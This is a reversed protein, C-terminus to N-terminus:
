VPVLAAKRRFWLYVGTCLSLSVIAALATPFEPIASDLVTFTDERLTYTWTSDYSAPPTFDPECVIVNWTGAVDIGPAFTHQTTLNGSADSTDDQTDRKDTGGDYYAMRYNHSPLLGTSKMFVTHETDYDSFDDCATSHTVDSYSAATPLSSNVAALADALGWGYVRDWGDTGNDTATSQLAHRVQEPTWTSNKELILAAVGAALPCAMSTGQMIFYDAPGSSNNVGDNDIVLANYAGPWTYIDTDRASIIASGPAVINPKPPAGTDVRPGRSSFSAIIDLTEGYTWGVGTYDTWSDRTVYAGVAIASDATAPSGITYDPDPSAFTVNDLLSYVHFFQSSASWNRARLYYTGVSLVWLSGSEGYYSSESQTGRSSETEGLSTYPTLPDGLDQSNYALLDLDNDTVLGDYWVMRCYLYASQSVTVEIWDSWNDAAVTGSYHQDDNADNGASILVVAGQEVAYDVAQATESSGDQYTSWGGYSVTIVDATYNDVAAKIAYVMADTSANGTINDGIKLFVLNADPATGNYTGGSQTGRGLASGAVHTGHGTVGPTNSINDGLIPYASYDKSDTLAPFDNHNVDIGSDLVAITVGTGDYGLGWVDDANIKQAALDNHPELVQEATELSVVYGKGALAALSDVPMDAIIFGTPHNKLPPIWSDPYLTLGISELEEIQSQNLPQALHIFVRQKNLDEVRMGMAQMALVSDVQGEALPAAQRARLKAEVQLALLGSIKNSEGDQASAAPAQFVGGLILPILLALLTLVAFYRRM